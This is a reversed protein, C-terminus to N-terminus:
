RRLLVAAITVAQGDINVVRGIKVLNMEGPRLEISAGFTHTSLDAVPVFSFGSDVNQAAHHRVVYGGILYGFVSGVLADSPFHKKSTM